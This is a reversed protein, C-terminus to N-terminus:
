LYFNHHIAVVHCCTSFKFVFHFNLLPFNIAQHCLVVRIGIVVNIIAHCKVVRVDIVVDTSAHCKVIRVGAVVEVSRRAGERLNHQRTKMRVCM